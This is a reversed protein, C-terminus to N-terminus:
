DTSMVYDTSNHVNKNETVKNVKVCMKIKLAVNYQDTEHSAEFGLTIVNPM